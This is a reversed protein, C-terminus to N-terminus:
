QPITDFKRDMAVAEQETLSQSLSYILQTVTVATVATFGLLEEYVPCSESLLKLDLYSIDM